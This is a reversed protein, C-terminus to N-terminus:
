FGLDWDIISKVMKIDYCVLKDGPQLQVDQNELSIGFEVNTKITNVETKMHKLSHCRLRDQLTEGNRTLKFFMKKDVCGETCRSGAVVITKKNSENYDFLKLVDAQGLQEVSEVLPTIENLESKLDDFLKYIVNFHKIRINKNTNTDDHPLNFCYIVADFTEALELDSKKIQGVEFHVIDLIVKDNADYTELVNLLAELSGNVDTKIIIHLTKPLNQKTDKDNSNSSALSGDSDYMTRIFKQGALRREKLKMHYLDNHSLQKAKIVEADSQSRILNRKKHRLEVLDKAKAETSLELVEDGANPLEKWGMVQVAQSLSAENLNTSKEDYLYKVRCWTSGAVLISGKRLTGRKILVTALRGKHVDLSSEIIYGEVPSTADGKLEMIEAQAWIEEKLLELNTKKM